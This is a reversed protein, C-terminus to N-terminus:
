ESFGVIFFFLFCSLHFLLVASHEEGNKKEMMKNKQRKTPL